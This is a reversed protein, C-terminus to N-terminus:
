NFSNLKTAWGQLLFPHYMYKMMLTSMPSLIGIIGIYSREVVHCSTTKCRGITKSIGFTHHTYILDHKEKISTFKLVQSSNIKICIHM